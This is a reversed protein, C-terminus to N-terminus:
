GAHPQGCSPNLVAQLEAADFPMQLFGDCAQREPSARDAPSMGVVRINPPISRMLREPCAVSLDVLVVALNADQVVAMAQETDSVATADAALFQAVSRQLVQRLRADRAIVLVKVPQRTAV